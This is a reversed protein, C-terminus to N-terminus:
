IVEVLSSHKKTDSGDRVMPHHWNVLLSCQDLSPLDGPQLNKKCIRVGFHFSCSRYANM